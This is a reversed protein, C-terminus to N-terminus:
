NVRLAVLDRVTVEVEAADLGPASFPTKRSREVSLAVTEGRAGDLVRALAAAPIAYRGSDAVRCRVALGNERAVVLSVAGRTGTEASWAVVLDSGTEVASADGLLRPAAPVDAPTVFRGVQQGGFAAIFAEGGTSDSGEL